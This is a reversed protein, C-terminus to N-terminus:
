GHSRMLEAEDVKASISVSTLLPLRADVATRLDAIRSHSLFASGRAPVLRFEFSRPKPM